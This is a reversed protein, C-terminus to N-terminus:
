GSPRVIGLCGDASGQAQIQVPRSREESGKEIFALGLDCRSQPLVQM